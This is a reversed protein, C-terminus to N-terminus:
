AAEARAAHYWALANIRSPEAEALDRVRQLEQRQERHFRAIRADVQAAVEAQSLGRAEALATLNLVWGLIDRLEHIEWQAMHEATSTPRMPLTALSM